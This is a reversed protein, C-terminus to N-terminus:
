DEKKKKFLLTALKAYIGIKVLELFRPGYFLAPAEERQALDYQVRAQSSVLQRAGYGIVSRRALEKITTNM